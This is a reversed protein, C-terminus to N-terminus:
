QFTLNEVEYSQNSTKNQVPAEVNRDRRVVPKESVTPKPRHTSVPTSIMTNSPLPVSHRVNARGPASDILGADEMEKLRVALGYALAQYEIHHYSGRGHEHFTRYGPRSEYKDSMPILWAIPSYMTLAITREECIKVSETKSGGNVSVEYLRRYEDGFVAPLTFASILCPIFMTFKGWSDLTETQAHNFTVNVPVGEPAFVGSQFSVISEVWGPAIEAHDLREGNEFIVTCDAIRYKNRTVIQAGSDPVLPTYAVNYQQCGSFLNGFAIGLFVGRFFRTKIGMKWIDNCLLLKNM